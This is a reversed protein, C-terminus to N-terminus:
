HTIRVIEILQDIWPHIHFNYQRFERMSFDAIIEPQQHRFFLYDRAYIQITDNLLAVEDATVTLFHMRPFTTYQMPRAYLVAINPTLPVLCKPALPAAQTSAFNHFFGDGFIFEAADTYLVVYKGGGRIADTFLQHSRRLNMPILVDDDEIEKLSGGARYNNVESRISNRFMPGRVILSSLCEALESLPEDEPEYAILRDALQGFTPTQTPRRSELWAVIHPFATDAAGFIGEFSSDWKTPTKALRIHHANNIAGLGAPPSRLLRGDWSLRGICGDSDAWFRSLGRPWWHHLESKIPQPM